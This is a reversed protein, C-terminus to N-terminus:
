RDDPYEAPTQHSENQSRPCESCRMSDATHCSRHPRRTPSLSNSELLTLHITKLHVLRRHQNSHGCTVVTSISIHSAGQISRVTPNLRSLQKLHHPVPM